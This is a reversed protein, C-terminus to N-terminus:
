EVNGILKVIERAQWLREIEEETQRTVMEACELKDVDLSEWQREAWALKKLLMGRMRRRVELECVTGDARAACPSSRCRCALTEEIGDQRLIKARLKDIYAAWEESVQTLDNRLQRCERREALLEDSLTIIQRDIHDLTPNTTRLDDSGETLFDPTPIDM